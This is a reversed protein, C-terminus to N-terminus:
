FLADSERSGSNYIIKLGWTPSTPALDLGRCSLYASKVESGNELGFNTKVKTTLRKSEKRM